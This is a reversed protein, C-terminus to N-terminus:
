GAKLMVVKGKLMFDEEPQEDWLDINDYDLLYVGNLCGNWEYKAHDHDQLMVDANKPMKNLRKILESVKM